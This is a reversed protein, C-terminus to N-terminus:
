GAPAFGPPMPAGQPVFALAKFLQGMESPHTLRRHAAIHVELAADSLKGALAQARQTIGLRELLVGQATMESVALGAAVAAQALPEFDVHATLDAQGPCAFPDVPEHKELAQFTDGLSRWGGYDVFIAMGGHRVRAAVAEVVPVAQPCIEVIDGPRTLAFRPELLALRTPPSLGARLTEDEAGVQTEAWGTETRTFQRIPLADIFENAVFFLPATEPLDEVRECWTVQHHGLTKAQVERLTPSAEVLHIDAAELMGPVRAAVRLIDAMLTGRGPGAEALTFCAPAGQDMWAQALCLGLMEGFLQSIEPATIFDGAQGFPDRTGYYGAQPDLLCAAMYHDLRM